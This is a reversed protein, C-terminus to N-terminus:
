VRADHECQDIRFRFCSRISYHVSRDTTTGKAIMGGSESSSQRVLSLSTRSRRIPESIPRSLKTSFSRYATAGLPRGYHRGRLDGIARVPLERRPHTQNDRLHGDTKGSGKRGIVWVHPRWTFCAASTPASQGDLSYVTSGHREGMAAHRHPRFVENRRRANSLRRHFIPAHAASRSRLHITRLSPSCPQIGQDKVSLATASTCSADATTTGHEM